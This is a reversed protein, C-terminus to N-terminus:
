LTQVSGGLSLRVYLEYDETRVRANKASNCYAHAAAVNEYVHGPSSELALPILHDLVPRDDIRKLCIHCTYNDREFVAARSIREVPLGRRRARRIEQNFCVQCSVTCFIRNVRETDPIATGCRKCTRGLRREYATKPSHNAYGHDSCWKSCYKQGTQATTFTKSCYACQASRQRQSRPLTAMRGNPRKAPRCAESCYKRNLTETPPLPCACTICIRGHRPLPVGHRRYNQGCRNTCYKARNSGPTFTNGCGPCDILRLSSRRAARKHSPRLSGRRRSSETARVEACTECYRARATRASIDVGCQACARIHAIGSKHRTRCRASCYLKDSRGVVTVGCGQCRLEPRYRDAWRAQQGCRVSCYKRDSRQGTFTVGCSPCIKTVKPVPKNHRLNMSASACARACYIKRPHDTTFQAGCHACNATREAM